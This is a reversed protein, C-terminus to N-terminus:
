SNEVIKIEEETLGYLEYVMKDIEKDTKDIESKLAQAEKKKTEFVEMWEMEDEFSTNDWKVYIKDKEVKTIIGKVQNWEKTKGQGSSYVVDGKKMNKKVFMVSMNPSTEFRIQSKLKYDNINNM